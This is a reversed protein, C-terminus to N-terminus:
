HIVARSSFAGFVGFGSDIGSQKASPASLYTWLNSEVARVRVVRPSDSSGAEDPFYTTDLTVTGRGGDTIVHGVAGAVPSWVIARQSRHLTSVPMIEGPVTVRGRISRGLTEIELLYTEGPRVDERGLTGSGGRAGLAFNAVLEGPETGDFGIPAVGSVPLARWAFLAGDALRRMEFREATRYESAIPSGATVLLAYLVSDAADAGRPSLLLILM